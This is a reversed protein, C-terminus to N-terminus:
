AGERTGLLLQTWWGSLQALANLVHLSCCVVVVGLGAVALAEALTDIRWASLTVVGDLGVLLRDWGVSLAPHYRVPADSVVGVYVGPQNYVLPVALMSVGTVSLSMVVTYAAVGVFLKTVLYVVAKWPGLSVVLRRLWGRVSDPSERDRTPVEIGLLVTALWREVSALGTALGLMGVLLPVGVVVVALGVGLSLGVAFLVFYVLGLPFALALYSLNRYTQRRFPVGFVTWVVARVTGDLM